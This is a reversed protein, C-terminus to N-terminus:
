YTGCVWSRQESTRVAWAKGGGKIWGRGRTNLSMTLMGSRPWCGPAKRFHEATLYIIGQKYSVKLLLLFDSVARLYYHDLPGVQTAWVMNGVHAYNCHEFTRNPFRSLSLDVMQKLTKYYCKINCRLGHGDQQALLKLFFMRSLASFNDELLQKLCFDLTAWLTVSRFRQLEM